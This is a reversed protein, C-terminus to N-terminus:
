PSLFFIGLSYRSFSIGRYFDIIDNLYLFTMNGLHHDLLEKQMMAVINYDVLGAYLSHNTELAGILHSYNDFRVTNKWSRRHNVILRGLFEDWTGTVIAVTENHVDSPDNVLDSTIISTVCGVIMISVMMWVISLFKGKGTKPVIDGYGVTALTVIAWYIKMPFGSLPIQEDISERDCVWMIAAMIATLIALFYLLIKSKSIAHLLRMTIEADRLRRIMAIGPSHGFGSQWSFLTPKYHMNYYLLANMQIPGFIFHEGDVGRQTLNSSSPLLLHKM